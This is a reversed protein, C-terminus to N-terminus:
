ASIIASAGEGCPRWYEPIADLDVVSQRKTAKKGVLYRDFFPNKVVDSPVHGHVTRAIMKYLKFEPYREEGNMKYMVNRGKDDKCWDAIIKVISDDELM